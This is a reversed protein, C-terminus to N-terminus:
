ANKFIAHIINRNRYCEDNKFISAIMKETKFALFNKTNCYFYIIKIVFISKNISLNFKSNYMGCIYM